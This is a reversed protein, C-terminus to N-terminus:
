VRNAVLERVIEDGLLESTRYINRCFSKLSFDMGPSGKDLLVGTIAFRRAAQEAHLQEVYADSLKCEGDTIFVIDANEFGGTEMLQLAQDMPTRFDTGGGLFTEAARLKNEMEPDDLDRMRVIAQADAGSGSTAYVADNIGQAEMQAQVDSLNFDQGMAFTMMTGGTFDIGLNFGGAAFLVIVAILIIAAPVCITYKFAKSFSVTKM